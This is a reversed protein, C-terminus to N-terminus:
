IVDEPAVKGEQFDVGTMQWEWGSAIQTVTVNRMQARARKLTPVSIPKPLGEAEAYLDRAMKPGKSLTATIFEKAASLQPGESVTRGNDREAKLLDDATNNHEEGWVICPASIGDVSKEGITYKLGSEKKSLNGKVMSMYREIKDEPDRTFGLASRAAGAVASGGPIKQIASVDSRKNDHVIGILTVGTRECLGKLADTVPRIEKNRNIDVDGSFSELPDLILLGINPNSELARRLLTTDADLQLHRAGEDLKVRHFFKIHSLDAGAANLRPIVTKALSDEAIAILVDRPGMTNKEGDPWDVGTTIRAAVDLTALSKGMNPKGTFWCITGAAIREPWLWTLQEPKIDTANVVTFKTNVVENGTADTGTALIIEHENAPDKEEPERKVFPNKALYENLWIQSFTTRDWRAEDEGYLETMRKNYEHRKLEPPITGGAIANAVAYGHSVYHNDAEQWANELAMVFSGPPCGKRFDKAQQLDDAIQAEDFKPVGLGYSLLQDSNPCQKIKAFYSLYLQLPMNCHNTTALTKLRAEECPIHASCDEYLLVSLLEPFEM